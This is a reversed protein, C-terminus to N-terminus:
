GSRGRDNVSGSAEAQRADAHDFAEAVTMGSARAKIWDRFWQRDNEDASRWNRLWCAQIDGECARARRCAARECSKWTMFLNSLLQAAQDRDSQQRALVSEWTPQAEQKLKRAM